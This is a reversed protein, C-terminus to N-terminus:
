KLLWEVVKSDDLKEEVRTLKDAAGAADYAAKPLKGTMTGVHNHALVAGPACLALFAPLGGYKVAGPLMMPDATDKIAEFRFQNLDAALKTVRDGALAKALVAVSGMEGFGVVYMKTEPSHVDLVTLVDRVRNALLSRNYGYTYGAFTKDVLYPKESVQEGTGLADIAIVNFGGDLLKKAAPVWGGKEILSAKGKPHVWVVSRDSLSKPFAWAFPVTAGDGPTRTLIGTALKYGSVDVPNLQVTKREESLTGVMCRLATGVVRKFEKLSEADTPALKALQADSAKTMV